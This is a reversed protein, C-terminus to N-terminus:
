AAELLGRQVASELRHGGNVTERRLESGATGETRLVLLKRDGHEEVCETVVVFDGRWVKSVNVQLLFAVLYRSATGDLHGKEIRQTCDHLHEYHQVIKGVHRRSRM